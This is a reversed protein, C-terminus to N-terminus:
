EQVLRIHGFFVGSPTTPTFGMLALCADDHLVPFNSSQIILDHETFGGAIYSIPIFTNSNYMVLNVIGTAATTFYSEVSQIGRDPSQLTAFFARNASQVGAPFIVTATRGPTGLENTYSISLTSTGAGTSNTVEVFLNNGIGDTYRSPSLTGTLSTPSTTGLLINSIHWLRDYIVMTNSSVGGIGISFINMTKGSPANVYPIAGLTSSTCVTGTSPPAGADGPNGAQRWFTSWTNAAVSLSTKFFSVTQTGDALADLVSNYTTFAM